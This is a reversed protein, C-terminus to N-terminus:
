EQPTIDILLTFHLYQRYPGVVSNNQIGLEDKVVISFVLRVMSHHRDANLMAYHFDQRYPGVFSNKQIGLEDLIYVPDALVLFLIM